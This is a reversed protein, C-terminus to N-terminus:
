ITLASGATSTNFLCTSSMVLPAMEWRIIIPPRDMPMAVETPNDMSRTSVPSGSSAM